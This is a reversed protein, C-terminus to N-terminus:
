KHRYIIDFQFYSRAFPEISMMSSDAYRFNLSFNEFDAGAFAGITHRYEGGIEPVHETFVSPTLQYDLSLRINKDIMYGVVFNHEILWPYTLQVGSDSEEATDEYFKEFNKYVSSYVAYLNNIKYNFGASAQFKDFYSMEGVRGQRDDIDFDWFVPSVVVAFMSSRKNVKANVAMRGSFGATRFTSGAGNDGENLIHSSMLMDFSLGVQHQRLDSIIGMSVADRKKIIERYDGQNLVAKYPTYYSIFPMFERKHNVIVSFNKLLDINEGNKVDRGYNKGNQKIYPSVSVMFKMKPDLYDFDVPVFDFLYAGTYASLATPSEYNMNEYYNYYTKIGAFAACSIILITIILNKQV